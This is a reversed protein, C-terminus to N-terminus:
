QGTILLHSHFVHISVVSVVDFTATIDLNFMFCLTISIKCQVTRYRYTICWCDSFVMQEM